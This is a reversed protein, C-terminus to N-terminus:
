KDQNIPKNATKRSQGFYYGAFLLSLDKFHSWVKLSIEDQVNSFYIACVGFLSLGVFILISLIDTFKKSQSKNSM